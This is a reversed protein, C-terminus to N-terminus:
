TLVDVHMADLLAMAAAALMNLAEVKCGAV